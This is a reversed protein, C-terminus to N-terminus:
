NEGTVDVKITASIGPYIKVEVSTVGTHKIGDPLLFKKKDVVIHHQMKLGQSVDAATISGFLKGNEGAKASLSVTAGNIKEYIEKANAIETDKRFVEAEKRGKLDNLANSTAEVALGRPLLFNRAYGDSVNLVDGKKGQSKVDKLLVVKM